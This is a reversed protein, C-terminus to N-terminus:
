DDVEAYRFKAAANAVGGGGLGAEGGVVANAIPSSNIKRMPNLSFNGDIKVGLLDGILKPIQNAFILIGLIIFVRALFNTTGLDSNQMLAAILTIAFYVAGLRIFLDAYTKGVEKLWKSFMGNKSSSPDIYSIIPIPSILQLFGLKM